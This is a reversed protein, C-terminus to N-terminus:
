LPLRVPKGSHASRYAAEALEIGARGVEGSTTPEAKGEICDLWHEISAGKSAFGWYRKEREEGTVQPYSGDDPVTEPFTAAEDMQHTKWTLGAGLSASGGACVVGEGGHRVEAAWSKCLMGTAGNAFSVVVTANNEVAEDAEPYTGGLPVHSLRAYVSEAPGYLWLWEDLVHIAQEVLMGGSEERVFLWPHRPPFWSVQNCYVLHPAGLTGEDLLAKLKQRAPRFRLIYAVQLRVAAGEAAAIMRDAEAVSRCMPKEVLIHKGAQAAAVALECHPRPHAAIIVAEVDDRALLASPSECRQAGFRAAERAATGDKVDHVAVVRARESQWELYPVYAGHFIGGCGIVGIGIPAM